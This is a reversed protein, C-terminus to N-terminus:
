RRPWRRPTLQGRRAGPRAQGQSRRVERVRLAGPLHQGHDAGVEAARVAPAANTASRAGSATTPAPRASSSTSRTPRCPDSADPAGFPTMTSAPRADSSRRGLVRLTSDPAHFWRGRRRFPGVGRHFLARLGGLGPRSGSRRDHRCRAGPGRAPRQAPRAPARSSRSAAHAMASAAGRVAARARSCAKSPSNRTGDRIGGASAMPQPRWAASAVRSSRSRPARTHLDEIRAESGGSPRPSRASCSPRCPSLTMVMSPLRCGTSSRHSACARWSNETRACSGCGRVVSNSPPGLACTPTRCAGTRRGARSAPMAASAPRRCREPLWM